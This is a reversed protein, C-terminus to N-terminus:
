EGALGKLQGKGPASLAHPALTLFWSPIQSGAEEEVDGPGGVHKKKGQVQATIVSVGSVAERGDAWCLDEETGHMETGGSEEGRGPM